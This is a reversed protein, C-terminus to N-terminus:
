IEKKIRIEKSLDRGLESIKIINFCTEIYSDLYQEWEYGLVYGNVNIRIDVCLAWLKM